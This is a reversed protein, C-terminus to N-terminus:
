SEEVDGTAFLELYIRSRDVGFEALTKKVNLMFQEPGCIYYETEPNGICLQTERDLTSLDLRPRVEVGSEERLHVYRSVPLRGGHLIEDIEVGFPLTGGSRSTHIWSVPRHVASPQTLAHLMSVLPTAGVGASVLVAPAGEKSVDAADLFFEGHPHSLQVTDGEELSSHLLNSVLGRVGAPGGRERKVSVRYSSMEQSWSSLSFQRSQLHGLEPVFVQLSVYQGPLFRPLPVVGDAPELHFSVIDEAERVKRAIRFTRWGTWNEDATYLDRERGIFGSALIGYAATWAEVIEPTVADGLVQGIARILQTGVIGYQEPRVFLSVHKQAIREIAHTLKPLDDIYTAYAIVARALARPQSGTTQSTQSFINKMEPNGALMNKYMTSTIAEGHAQLVPVTAKIIALQSPSLPAVTPLHKRQEVSEHRLDQIAM